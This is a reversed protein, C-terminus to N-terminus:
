QGKYYFREHIVQGNRWQRSAVQQLKTRQGGKFTVDYDWESYSRDGNVAEGLLKAGHFQEVRNVFEEERKRNVDKGVFPESDNEQMVVDTAYFKDFANLIDGALIALNLERDLTAVDPQSKSATSMGTLHPLRL